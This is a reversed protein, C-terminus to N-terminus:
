AFGDLRSMILDTELRQRARIREAEDRTGPLPFGSADHGVWRLMGQSGAQVRRVVHLLFFSFDDSYCWTSQRLVRVSATFWGYTWGGFM